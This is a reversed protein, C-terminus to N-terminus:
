PTEEKFISPRGANGSNRGSLIYRCFDRSHTSLPRGRALALYFERYACSDQIPVLSVGCVELQPDYPLISLGFGCAVFNAISRDEGMRCAVIPRVGLGLLMNEIYHTKDVSFILPYQGIERLTVQSQRALPHDPPAVLRLPCRVLPHFRIEPQDEMYSCLGIESRGELLNSIIEPTNAQRLHFAIERDGRRRVYGRLIHPLYLNAIIYNLSIDLVCKQPDTLDRVRALGTDLESMASFIHEAFARGFRSLVVNRGQKEFLPAGLEAEQASISRSLAPQSVGLLEASRQYHQTHALSEFHRLQHLTM